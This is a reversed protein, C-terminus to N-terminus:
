KLRKVWDRISSRVVVTQSESQMSKHIFHAYKNKLSTFTESVSDSGDKSSITKALELFVTDSILEAMLTLFEKSEQNDAYYMAVSPARTAINIIGTGKDLCVRIRPDQYSNLRIGKFLIPCNETSKEANHLREESNSNARDKEEHPSAQRDYRMSSKMLRIALKNIEWLVNGLRKRLDEGMGKARAEQSAMERDIIPQLENEMVKRLTKTFPHHQDLGDGFIRAGYPSYDFRFLTSEHIASKSRILIGGNRTYGEQSLPKDAMYVNLDLTAKFGPVPVRHKRLVLKGSPPRYGLIESRQGDTLIVRRRPSQMIDRLAWHNSLAYGIWGVGPMKRIKTVLVQVRTGNKGHPIGLGLYDSLSARRGEGRLYLGDENLHCANLIGDKISRVNGSGLGLIAEKLGRGYFGRVSHGTNFGSVDCGYTGVCEDISSASMGEAFDLVTLSNERRDLTVIIRGYSSDNKSGMRRYSDDSNTILEVLSKIPDGRVVSTALQILARDAVALHRRVVIESEIEPLQTRCVQLQTV